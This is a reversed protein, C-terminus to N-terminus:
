DKPENLLCLDGDVQLEARAKVETTNHCEQCEIVFGAPIQHDHVPLIRVRWM